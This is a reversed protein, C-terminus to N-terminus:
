VQENNAMRINIFCLVICAVISAAAIAFIVEAFLRHSTFALIVAIIGSFKATAFLSLAMLNRRTM